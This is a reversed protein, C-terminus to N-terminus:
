RLTSSIINTQTKNKDGNFSSVYTCDAAVGVRAVKRTSPCGATKGITSSLDVGAGNGGPQLDDQRKFMASILSPSMASAEDRARMSAYVPHDEHTNFILEDSPCGVEQTRKKLEMNEGHHRGKGMDSDRFVVMFERDRLDVDPDESLRTAKYSSATKVHHHDHHVSFTGEFLPDLGDERLGIRAWGVNDWRNGRKLWAKGKYVKHQLRDIPEQRAVSGDSNVHTIRGDEVFLDHNPELSLRIRQGSVDFALDFSSVATVRHTQTLIDANQVRAIRQLPQRAHSAAAAVTALGITLATQLSGFLRM